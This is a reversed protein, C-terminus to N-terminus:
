EYLSLIASTAEDDWGDLQAVSKAGDNATIGVGHICRGFPWCIRATTLKVADGQLSLPYTTQMIGKGYTKAGNGREILCIDEFGITGYDLMCGLLCESASATQEDALVFIRSDASFYDAYANAKAYFKQTDGDYDAIAVLPKKDTANKCFYQAIDLMIDLYGGGNGRLDLVLDKKNQEKFLRMAGAFEEGASGNFQTLYIYATDAPLGSLPMGAETTVDADEGTFRYSGTKTRYFVYNETYKKKALAVTRQEGASNEVCVFFPEDEALPELFAVFEEFVSSQRIQTKGFGVIYEGALIGVEEAPSNGCVRVVRMKEEVASFVLGIGEQEGKAKQRNKAYEESTLYGSYKDLLKENVSQFLLGYFEEDTVEEYYSNQIRNKLRILSRIEPDLVLRSAGFGAFFTLVGVLGIIFARRFGSKNKDTGKTEKEM